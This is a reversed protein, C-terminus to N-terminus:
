PPGASTVYQVPDPGCIYSDGWMDTNYAQDIPLLNNDRLVTLVNSWPGQLPTDVWRGKGENEKDKGKGKGKGKSGSEEYTYRFYRNYSLIATNITDLNTENLRDQASTVDAALDIDDGGGNDNERNTGWSRLTISSAGAGPRAPANVLKYAKLWADYRFDDAPDSGLGFNVYPGQWNTRGIPRSTLDDLSAPFSANDRYFSEIAACVAEMETTTDATDAARISAAVIPLAIGAVLTLVGVVILIEILAFGAPGGLRPPVNLCLKSTSCGRGVSSPQGHCGYGRANRDTNLSSCGTALIM